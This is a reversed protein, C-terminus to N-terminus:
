THYFDMIGGVIGMVINLGFVCLSLALAQEIPVGLMGLLSIFTGERIGIGAITLPLLLAISVLAFIWCWDAFALYINLDIALLVIALITLLQFCAGLIVSIFLVPSNRLYHLWALSVRELQTATNELWKFYRKTKWLLKHLPKIFWNMMFLITILGLLAIILLWLFIVPLLLNSYYFGITGVILLGILGTIKDVVVSTAITEIEQKGKGLYYVKVAEGFLQGPLILSYYTAIVNLKLLNTLKYQPLLLQWKTASIWFTIAILGLALLLNVLTLMKFLSFLASLNTNSLFWTLLIISVGLKFYQKNM